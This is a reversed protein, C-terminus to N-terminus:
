SSKVPSVSKDSLNVRYYNKYNDRYTGDPRALIHRTERAGNEHQIIIEAKKATGSVLIISRKEM